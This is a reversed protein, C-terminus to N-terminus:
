NGMSSPLNGITIYIPWAKKDGLLNTVHTQDSLALISVVTAKDLLTDKANNAVTKM